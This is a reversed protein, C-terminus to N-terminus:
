EGKPRFFDGFRPGEGRFKPAMSQLSRHLEDAAGWFESIREHQVVDSEVALDCFDRVFRDMVALWGKEPELCRDVEKHFNETVDIGCDQPAHSFFSQVADRIEPWNSIGIEVVAWDSKRQAVNDSLFSWAGLILQTKLPTDTVSGKSTGLRELFRNKLLDHNLRSRISELRECRDSVAAAIRYIPYVCKGFEEHAAHFIDKLQTENLTSCINSRGFLMEWCVRMVGPTGLISSGYKVREAIECSAAQSHQPHLCGNVFEQFPTSAFSIATRLLSELINRGDQTDNFLLRMPISATAALPEALGKELRSVIETQDLSCSVSPSKECANGLCNAKTALLQEQVMLDLLTMEELLVSASNALRQKRQDSSECWCEKLADFDYRRNKWSVLLDHLLNTRREVDNIFPAGWFLGDAYGEHMSPVEPGSSVYVISVRSGNENMQWVSKSITEFEHNSYHLVLLFPESSLENLDEVECHRVIRVATEPLEPEFKKFYSQVCELICTADSNQEEDYRDHAIILAYM